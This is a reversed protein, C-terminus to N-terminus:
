SKRLLKRHSPLRKISVPDASISLLRGEGDQGFSVCMVTDLCSALALFKPMIIADRETQRDTELPRATARIEM